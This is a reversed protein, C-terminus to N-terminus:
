PGLSYGASRYYFHFAWNNLIISYRHGLDVQEVVDSTKTKTQSFRILYWFGIITWVREDNGIHLYNEIKNEVM